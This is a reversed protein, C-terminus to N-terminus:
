RAHSVGSRWYSGGDAGPREAQFGCEASNARQFVRFNGGVDSPLCPHRMCPLACSIACFLMGYAALNILQHSISTDLETLLLGAEASSSTGQQMGPRSARCGLCEIRAPCIARLLLAGYFWANLFSQEYEYSLKDHNVLKSGNNWSKSMSQAEPCPM